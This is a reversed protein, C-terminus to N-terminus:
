EPVSGLIRRRISPRSWSAMLVWASRMAAARWSRIPAYPFFSHRPPRTFRRLHNGLWLREETPVARLGPKLRDAGRAAQLRYELM